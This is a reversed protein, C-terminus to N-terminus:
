LNEEKTFKIINLTQKDIKIHESIAVGLIALVNSKDAIVPVTNRLRLPIKVDTFYDSLKKTGGGFKNFTDGDRKYRIVATKPIKDLDAYFGSKLDTISCVKEATIISDGFFTKGVSFPIELAPTSCPISLVIRDYERTAIIGKPLSIKSGNELETLSYVSDIHAKQWDKEVGLSKIAIIVARNFVARHIPLVIEAVGNKIITAEKASKDLYDDELRAIASLRAISKEAEPFIKKIENLVNHRLNNRTYDDSLNTEDTVFPISNEKIYEEIEEKSVNLFPRIIKDSYNENIGILGKIGTGRFLNLLVSEANDRLHHATAVKDCKGSKICDFFCNYRLIRAAQEISLKEQKAYSLTDIDYCVVEIDNKDCYEKVFKTDSISSDGRIGHEVNLAIVKFGFLEANNQMYHLLAMSDSGGSVAVAVTQNKKAFDALDIKM